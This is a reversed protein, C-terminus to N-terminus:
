KRKEADDYYHARIISGVLENVSYTGKYTRKVTYVVGENNRNM